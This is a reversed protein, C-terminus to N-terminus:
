DQNSLCEVWGKIMSVDPRFVAPLLIMMWGVLRFFQFLGARWGFFDQCLIWWTSGRSMWLGRFVQHTDTNPVGLLIEFVLHKPIWIGGWFTNPHIYPVVWLIWMNNPVEHYSMEKPPFNHIKSPVMFSGSPGLARFWVHVLSQSSIIM